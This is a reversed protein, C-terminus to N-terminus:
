RKALPWNSLQVAASARTASSHGVVTGKDGGYDKHQAQKQKYHTHPIEGLPSPRMSQHRAHKIFIGEM